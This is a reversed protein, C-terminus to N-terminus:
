FRAVIRYMRVPITPVITVTLTVREAEASVSEYSESLVTMQLSFWNVMDISGELTFTLGPDTTRRVYTIVGRGPEDMDLTIGTDDPALADGGFAYEQDNDSADGDPNAGAGWLTMELGPDAMGPNFTRMNWLQRPSLPFSAEDFVYIEFRNSATEGCFDAATLLVPTAEVALPTGTIALEDYVFGNAGAPFDGRITLTDGLDPDSFTNSPVLCRFPQGVWANQNTMPERVAPANNYKFRYMFVRGRDNVPALNVPAGIAAFGGFLSVAGGFLGVTSGSPRNVTEALMWSNSNLPNQRYLYAHGINTGSTNHPAGVLLGIGDLSLSAGFWSVTSAPRVLSVVEEWLNSAPDKQFLYVRGADSQMLPAGVALFGGLIDVDWGFQEAINTHSAVVKQVLGWNGSGGQNRNYVYVAGEETANAPYSNNRPAGVALDDGSLSVCRGFQSTGGSADLPYIRALQGWEGPGSEDRGFLFVAGSKNSAPSDQRAGVALVDAHLAVDYGFEAGTSLNTPIVRKLLGWNDPGGLDKQFLYVAGKVVGNTEDGPAGVAILDGDVAVSRGFNDNTDVDAPTLNMFEAWSNDTAPLRRYLTVSGAGAGHASADYAGVVALNCTNDVAAGFFAGHITNSPQLTSHTGNYAIVTTAGDEVPPAFGDEVSLSFQNTIATGEPVVVNSLVYQMGNLDASAAGPSVNTARYVGNSVRVFSGLNTLTGVLPKLFTVTVNMPQLGLDDVDTISVSSFLRIPILHYMTQGARTGTIVPADNVATVDVVTNTDIFPDSKNDTISLIFRTIENTPVPIRNETPDFVLGHIMATAEAATVNTLVYVGPASERFRDLNRLLGKAPDDLAVSVDVWELTFADVEYFVVPGFPSCVEKDTIYIPLADNTISPRDNRGLVVVTVTATDSDSNMEYVTVSAIGAFAGGSQDQLRYEFTETYPYAGAYTSSPTYKVVGGTVVAEGGMSTWGADLLSLAVIDRGLIYDNAVVDCLYSAGGSAAVFRDPTRPIEGVWVYAMASGQGGQGDTVAYGLSDWGVYNSAPTYYVHGSVLTAAGHAPPELLTTIWWGATGAPRIGDNSLVPLENSATNSRVAFADDVTDLEVANTRTQVTVLVTAAARRYTGDTVEYTFREVYEPVLGINTPTYVLSLGDPSIAVGGMQNPANTAAADLGVAIISLNQGFDPLMLDNDTVTLVYQTLAAGTGDDEYLVTYADDNARIRGGDVRVLVTAVDSHRGDTTTYTFTEEGSFGAAPTYVLSLSDPGVVVTGGHNPAGAGTGISQIVLSGGSSSFVVDNALVGLVNDASDRVASYYDPNAVVPDDGVVTVAVQGTLVTGGSSAVTFAFFSLGTVGSAAFQLQGGGPYVSMVGQPTVTPAVGLVFLNNPMAQSLVRDNALVDLLNLTNTGVAYADPLVEVDGVTVTVRGTGTGGLGDSVVYAFSDRGVFGSAPSYLVSREDASIATFPGSELSIIRWSSNGFPMFRDNELVNFLNSLSGAPVSYNDDAVDLSGRRNVVLMDVTGTGFATGGGTVEYQFTEHYPYTGPGVPAPTYRVAGGGGLTVIGGQDPATLIRSVDLGTGNEPLFYDNAVLSVTVTEGYAVSFYDSMPYIMGNIKDQIVRVHVMAKTIFGARNTIMYTFYEDGVYNTAPTYRLAQGDTVSVQGSASANGVWAIWLETADPRLDRDNALVQLVVGTVGSQVAFEDDVAFFLGGDHVVYDFRTTAIWGDALGNLVDTPDFIFLNSTINYPLDIFYSMYVLSTAGDMVDNLALRDDPIVGDIDWEIDNTALPARLIEDETITYWDNSAIPGDNVGRVVVALLSTVSGPNSLAFDSIVVDFSDFILEGRALSNLRFSNTPDYILDGTGPDIAVAAGHRSLPSVWSVRLVDSTDVDSANALVESQAISLPTDEDTMWFDPLLLNYSPVASTVIVSVDQRGPTGSASPLVYDAPVTQLFDVLPTDGALPLLPTLGSEPDFTDEPVDNVGAVPIQALGLAAAGHSDQAVYYFLDWATEGAALGNLFASVRPNYVLSTERPDARIELAVAAGLMSTTSLRNDDEMRAWLGKVAHNDVYLVPITFTDADVVTAPHLNNYSAHGGYGSILVTDGSVLGHHTATVTVPSADPTGAYNGVPQPQGVAGIIRLSVGEDDEDPDHDNPLLSEDAIVPRMPYSDDTTFVATTSGALDPMGMIRTITDETVDLIVDNVPEPPDNVGVVTLTVQGESRASPERGNLMRWSGRPETDGAFAVGNLSFSDANLVTITHTGNYNTISAGSLVISTGNTLRHAPSYVGVSAGAAYGTVAGAGVDLIEYYFVDTLKQGPTLAQILPADLPNYEVYEGQIVPSVAANSESPIISALGNYSSYAQLDNGSDGAYTSVDVVVLLDASDSDVDNQRVHLATPWDESVTYADNAALPFGNNYGFPTGATDSGPSSTNVTTSANALDAGGFPPALVISHPLLAAGRYQPALTLSNNDFKNSNAPDFPDITLWVYDARTMELSEPAPTNLSVSGSLQLDLPASSPAYVPTAPNPPALAGDAILVGHGPQILPISAGFTHRLGGDVFLRCNALDVPESDRPVFLEIFDGTGVIDPMIENIIVRATRQYEVAGKDPLADRTVGRQDTAYPRGRGMNIAPSGPQLAFGPTPYMNENLPMLLPDANTADDFQDLVTVSEPIGGQSITVHTSDDSLNGGQSIIRGAGQPYLNLGQGDAFISSRVFLRTGFVNASLSSGQDSADENNAFTCHAVTSTMVISPEYNEAYIAGGGYGDLSQQRNSTFTSNIFECNLGTYLSVAGGGLGLTPDTVNGELFCHQVSLQGQEVDIAGGWQLASCHRVACYRLTLSGTQVIGPAPNTTGVYIGGGTGATGDALTLGEMTVRSYVRFLQIDASGNGDSDGSIRLLDAGPGKITVSHAISIPGLRSDLRIIEPYSAFAFTVVDGSNVESIARRLSGKLPRGREGVEAYDDPYVADMVETVMLNRREQQLIISLSRSSRNLVADIVTIEFATEGPSDPPFPYAENIQYSINSFALNVQALTGTFQYFGSDAPTEHFGVAGSVAPNTISLAGKQPEDIEVTVTVNSDDDDVYVGMLAFPLVPSPPPAPFPQAPPEPVTGIVPAGNVATIGISTQSDTRTADMSDKATITVTLSVTEGLVRGTVRNARFDVGRIAATVQTATGVINTQSLIGQAPDSLTLTVTIQQPDPDSITVASFPYIPPAAPDDTTHQMVPDVGTISPTTNVMQATISVVGTGTGNNRDTVTIVVPVVVNSALPSAATFQVNRIWTSAASSLGTFSLPAPSLTAYASDSPNQLGVNVVFPWTTDDPDPDNIDIYFPKISSGAQVNTPSVTANPAPNSNIGEIGVLYTVRSTLAGADTVVVAVTVTEVRSLNAPVFVLNRLNTTVQGPIGSTSYSPGTAFSAFSNGAIIAATVSLVENSPNLHDVDSILINRFLNTPAADPVLSPVAGAQSPQDNVPTVTVNVSSTSSGDADTAILRITGIGNDNTAPYFRVARLVGTSVLFTIQSTPFLTTDTSVATVTVDTWGGSGEGDTVVFSLNTVTDELMTLTSTGLAITPPDPISIVVVEVQDTALGDPDSVVLTVTGTGFQNTGPWIRMTRDPGDNDPFTINNTPLLIPDDTSVELKLPDTSGGDGDSVTFDVDVSTDENVTVSNTEFVVTPPNQAWASAATWLVIGVVWWVPPFRWVPLRPRNMPQPLGLISKNKAM